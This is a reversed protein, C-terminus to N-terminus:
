VEPKTGHMAGMLIITRSSVRRKGLAGKGSDPTVESPSVNLMEEALMVWGEDSM